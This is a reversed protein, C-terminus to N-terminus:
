RLIPPKDPDMGPAMPALAKPLVLEPIEFGLGARAFSELYPDDVALFALDLRGAEVGSFRLAESLAESVGAKAAEPVNVLALMHGQEGGEYHVSVLHAAGVVGAMNALKSDLAAILAEPVGSPKGIELPKAEVAEDEGISAQALWSVAEPPLVMASPAEGLNLGIGLGQGALLKAVRRGSLAVYDSPTDNFAAMREELDFALVLAGDSTEVVLPEVAGEEAESELMLFLEAELFRAYFALAQAEDQQMAIYATDLPTQM